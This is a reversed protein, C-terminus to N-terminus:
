HDREEAPMVQQHIGDPLADAGLGPELLMGDVTSTQGAVATNVLFNIMPVQDQLIAQAQKYLDARRARGAGRSRSPSSDFEPNKWRSYNWPATSTLALQFYTIPAARTGWDVFSFDAEYWNDTGKEAYYVDPPVQQIEVEVGIEKMQAQWATALAPVPDTTQAM